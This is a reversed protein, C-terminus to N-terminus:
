VGGTPPKVNKKRPRFKRLKDVLKTPLPIGSPEPAAIQSLGAGSAPNKEARQKTSGQPKGKNSEPVPLLSPEKGTSALPFKGALIRDRKEEYFTLASKTTAQSSQGSPTEPANSVRCNVEKAANPTSKLLNLRENLSLQEKKEKQIPSSENVGGYSGLTYNSRSRRVRRGLLRGYISRMYTDYAEEGDRGEALEKYHLMMAGHRSGTYTEDDPNMVDFDDDEEYPRGRTYWTSELKPQPTHYDEALLTGFNLPEERNGNCGTHVGHVGESNFLPSGSSGPATSMRYKVRFPAILTLKGTAKKNDPSLVTVIAGERYKALKGVKVGLGSTVAEPCDIATVDFDDYGSEGHVQWRITPKLLRTTRGNKEYHLGDGFELASAVVHTATLLVIRGARKIVSAMGLRHGEPSVIHVVFPPEPGAEVAHIGAAMEKRPVPMTESAGKYSNPPPTKAAQTHLSRTVYRTVERPWATTLWWVARLPFFVVWSFPVRPKFNRVRTVCLRLQVYVFAVFTWSFMVCVYLAIVDVVNSWKAADHAARHISRVGHLYQVRAIDYSDYSFESVANLAAETATWLFHYFSVLM